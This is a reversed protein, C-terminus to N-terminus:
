SHERQMHENITDIVEQLRSRTAWSLRERLADPGPFLTLARQAETTYSAAREHCYPHEDTVVSGVVDTFTRDAEDALIADLGFLHPFTQLFEWGGMPLQWYEPVGQRDLTRVIEALMRLYEAPEVDGCARKMKELFNSPLSELGTNIEVHDAAADLVGTAVYVSCNWNASWNGGVVRIYRRIEDDLSLKGRSEQVAIAIDLLRIVPGDSLLSPPLSQVSIM